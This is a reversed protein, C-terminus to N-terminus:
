SGALRDLRDDQRLQRVIETASRTDPDDARIGVVARMAARREELKGLYRERLAARVLESITTHEREARAHLATWLHDDLYLQTRRV